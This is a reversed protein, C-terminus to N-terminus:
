FLVLDRLIEIKLHLALEVLTVLGKSLHVLFFTRPLSSFLDSHSYFDVRGKVLHEALTDLTAPSGQVETMKSYFPAEM